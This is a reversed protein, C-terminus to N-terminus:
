RRTFMSTDPIPGDRLDPGYICFRRGAALIDGFFSSNLRCRHAWGWSLDHPSGAGTPIVLLDKKAQACESYRRPDLVEFETRAIGVIIYVGLHVSPHWINLSRKEVWGGLLSQRPISDWEQFGRVQSIRCVEGAGDNREIAIGHAPKWRHPPATRGMCFVPGWEREISVGEFSVRWKPSPGIWTFVAQREWVDIECFGLRTLDGDINNHRSRDYQAALESCGEDFCRKFRRILQLCNREHCTGILDAPTREIIPSM